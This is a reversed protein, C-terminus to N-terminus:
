PPALLLAMHPVLPNHPDNRNTTQARQELDDLRDQQTMVMESLEKITEQLDEEELHVVQEILYQMYATQIINNWDEQQMQYIVRSILYQYDRLTEPGRAQVLELM